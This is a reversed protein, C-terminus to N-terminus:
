LVKKLQTIFKEATLQEICKFDKYICGKYDHKYLFNTKEQCFGCELSADPVVPYFDKGLIGDRIPMRIKPSVVTFGGVIKASTCGALHMLGCDVGIVAASDNMIKGAELLSTKDILNVGESYKVEDKFTGKISHRGGTNAITAGLFVPTYGMGKVYAILANVTRSDFERAPATYGVLFSVFREPLGMSSTLVSDLNLSPYNKHEIGPIEDCLKLFAYDVVHIKMPSTHGDWKTTKTPKNPNYKKAMATYDRVIANPPLVNKALELLYDPVWILLNVWPYQTLIYKTAVLSGIHDGLGGDMFICNVDQNQVIFSSNNRM